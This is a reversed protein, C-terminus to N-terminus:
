ENAIVERALEIYEKSAKAQNDYLHVPMQERQSEAVAVNQHIITKFIKDGFLERLKEEFEDAIRTRSDVRTLLVGEIDLKPNFNDQVLEFIDILQSFGNTSYISPETPIIISDSACLANITIQSLSPPCDLIIFDYELQDDAENIANALIMERDERNATKIDIDALDLKAPIIDINRVRSEQILDTLKAQGTLLEYTTNDKIDEDFVLTHSLNAQSDLDLLLSNRSLELFSYALNCATTTKGVGGKQNIISIVKTNYEM